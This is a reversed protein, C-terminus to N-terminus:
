DEQELDSIVSEIVDIFPKMWGLIEHNARVLERLQGLIYIVILSSTMESSISEVKKLAGDRIAKWAGIFTDAGGRVADRLARFLVTAFDNITALLSYGTSARLSAITAADLTKILQPDHAGISSDDIFERLTNRVERHVLSDPFESVRKVIERSYRDIAKIDLQSTSLINHEYTRWDEYDAVFMLVAAVSASAEGIFEQSFEEACHSFSLMFLKARAGATIPNLASLDEPLADLLNQARKKLRPHNGLAFDATIAAVELRAQALLSVRHPDNRAGIDNYEHNVLREGQWEYYHPSIKEPPLEPFLNYQKQGPRSQASSLRGLRSRIFAETTARSAPTVGKGLKEQEIERVFAPTLPIGPRTFFSHIVDRKMGMKIMSKAFAIDQNSLGRNM